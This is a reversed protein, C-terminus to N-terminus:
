RSQTKEKKIEGQNAWEVIKEDLRMAGYEAEKCYDNFAEISNNCYSPVGHQLRTYGIVKKLGFDKIVDEISKYKDELLKNKCVFFVEPSGKSVPSSIALQTWGTDNIKEGAHWCSATKSSIMDLAEKKNKVEVYQQDSSAYLKNLQALTIGKADFKDLEVLNSVPLEKVSVASYGSVSTNMAVTWPDITDYKLKISSQPKEVSSNWLEGTFTDNKIVGEGYFDNHGPYNKAVNTNSPATFKYKKLAQNTQKKNDELKCIMNLEEM